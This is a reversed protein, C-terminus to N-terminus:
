ECLGAHRAQETFLFQPGFPEAPSIVVRIVDRAPRWTALFTKVMKIVEQRYQFCTSLSAHDVGATGKLAKQHWFWVM